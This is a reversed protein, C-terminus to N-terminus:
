DVGEQKKDQSLLVFVKHLANKYQRFTVRGQKFLSLVNDRYNEWEKSVHTVSDKGRESGEHKDLAEMKEVRSMKSWLDNFVKDVEISYLLKIAHFASYVKNESFCYLLDTDPHYKASPKGTMEDPHFPCYINSGETQIGLDNLLKKLNYHKNIVDYKVLSSVKDVTLSDFANEQFVQEPKIVVREMPKSEGFGDVDLLGM